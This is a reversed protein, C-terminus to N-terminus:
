AQEFTAGGGHGSGAAECLGHEFDEGVVRQFAIEGEEAVPHAM